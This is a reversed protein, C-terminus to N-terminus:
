PNRYFGEKNREKDKDNEMEIILWGNRIGGRYDAM